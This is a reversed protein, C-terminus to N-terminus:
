KRTLDRLQENNTEIGYKEPNFNGGSWEMFHTHQEDDPNGIVELFEAYSTKGGVDEPPCAREGELCSVAQVVKQSVLDMGLAICNSEAAM